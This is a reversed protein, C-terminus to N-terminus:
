KKLLCLQYVSVIQDVMRELYYKQRFAKLGGQGVKKALKRDSLLRTVTNALARPNAPEVIFGNVGHQIVEPMGGMRSVIMPKGAAMAELMTIGFPEQAVSPYICIEAAAYMAPMFEIPYSDILTDHRLGFNDLLQLIFAIDRQQSSVWDIVDKTGSMVLMANPFEQKILRFAQVSIHNGKALGMRAPHFIIRKERLQPYKQLAAERSAKFFPTGDIGHHIVTIRKEDFGYGELARKIYHSVAIIRDWQIKAAISLFLQDDWVNHATLILPIKRKRTEERLIMAHLESFYHMNHAHVLEARSEDLFATIKQRVEGELSVFGRSALWNLDLIPFRKIRVGEEVYAAKADLHSGTLLFVRHGLRVLAPCLNFLHTEVGGIVPPYGWHVFAIRM